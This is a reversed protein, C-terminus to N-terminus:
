ARIEKLGVDRASQVAAFLRDRTEVHFQKYYQSRQQHEGFVQLLARVETENYVAQWRNRGNLAVLVPGPLMGETIWRYVVQTNRGLAKAMEDTTLCLGRTDNGGVGRVLRVQGIDALLPLNERCDDQRVPLGAAERSRSYSARVQRIANDRYESDARYRARRGANREAGWWRAKREAIQEPTRM